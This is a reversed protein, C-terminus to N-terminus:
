HAVITEGGQGPPPGPWKIRVVVAMLVVVFNLVAILMFPGWGGVIDFLQGGIAVAIFIGIAGSTNFMGVVAGRKLKPAEQSILITAALFASIQGVGLLLSLLLTRTSLPFGSETFMTAEDVFYMCGYGVAAISMSIIVSSVRNMKDTLAGLIPLWLLSASGAMAFIIAGKGAATAYDMGQSVGVTAGWLVTFTGLIVQDSRAVFGCAYALAIRKNKVAETFGSSILESVPPREEKTGPTGPKLGLYFVIASIFCTAAVIIHTIRTAELPEFGAEVLMPAARAGFIVTICIVGLGNFIGGVAVFKGRSQDSSYDAILTGVMGTSLGLGLAYIGRYVLLENVSGAYPYLLYGLGMIAIGVAAVERRGIRDAAVGAVGFIAIQVIETVIVLNGTVGGQENLPVGLANLVQATGTSVFTLLGIVMFAAYFFAYANLKSIGPALYLFGLKVEQESATGAATQETM